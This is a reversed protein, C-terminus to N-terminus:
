KHSLWTLPDSSGGIAGWGDFSGACGKVIDILNCGGGDCNQSPLASQPNQPDLTTCITFYPGDVGFTLMQTSPGVATGDVPLPDPPNTSIVYSDVIPTGDQFSRGQCPGLSYDPANWPAELDVFAWYCERNGFLDRYVLYTGTHASALPLLLLLALGM